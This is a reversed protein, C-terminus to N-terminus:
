EPRLCNKFIRVLETGDPLTMIMYVSPGTSGDEHFGDAVVLSSKTGTYDTYTLGPIGIRPPMIKVVFEDQAIVTYTSEKVVFLTATGSSFDSVNRTTSLQLTRGGEEETEQTTCRLDNVVQADANTSLALTAALGMLFLKM